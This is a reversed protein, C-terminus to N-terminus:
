LLVLKHGTWNSKKKIKTMLIAQQQELHRCWANQLNYFCACHSTCLSDWSFLRQRCVKLQFHKARHPTTHTPQSRNAFASQASPLRCSRVMKCLSTTNPSFPWPLFTLCYWLWFLPKATHHWDQPKLCHMSPIYTWAHIHSFDSARLSDSSNNHDPWKPKETTYLPSYPNNKSICHYITNSKHM